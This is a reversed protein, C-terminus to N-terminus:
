RGSSIYDLQILAKRGERSLVFVFLLCITVIWKLKTIAKSQDYGLVYFSLNEGHHDSGETQKITSGDGHYSSVM